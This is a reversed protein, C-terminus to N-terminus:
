QEVSPFYPCIESMDTWVFAKYKTIDASKTFSCTLTANYRETQNDPDDVGYTSVYDVFVKGDSNCMKVDKLQGDETYGALILVPAPLVYDRADIGGTNDLDAADGANTTYADTTKSKYGYDTDLGARLSTASTYVKSTATVTDGDITIEPREIDVAEKVFYANCNEASSIKGKRIRFRLAEHPIKSFVDDTNEDVERNLASIIKMESLGNIDGEYVYIRFLGSDSGMWDAPVYSMQIRYWNGYKLEFGTNTDWYPYIKANGNTNYWTAAKLIDVFSNDTSMQLFFNNTGNSATGNNANIDSAATLKVDFSWSIPTHVRTYVSKSVYPYLESDATFYGFLGVVGIEDSTSTSHNAKLSLVKDTESYNWAKTWKDNNTATSLGANKYQPNKIGRYHDGNYLNSYQYYGYTVDGNSVDVEHAAIANTPTKPYPMIMQSYMTDITGDLNGYAFASITFLSMLLTLCIITSIAIKKM